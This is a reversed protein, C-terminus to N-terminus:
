SWSKTIRARAADIKKQVKPYRNRAEIDDLASAGDGDKIAELAVIGANGVKEALMGTQPRHSYSRNILSVIPTVAEEAPLFSAAWVLGRAAQDFANQRKTGDCLSTRVPATPQHADLRAPLARATVPSLRKQTEDLWRSSPRVSKPAARCHAEFQGFAIREQPSLAAYFTFVPVFVGMLSVVPVSDLILQARIDLQSKWDQNHRMWTVIRSHAALPSAELEAYTQPEHATGQGAALRANMACIAGHIEIFAELHPSPDIGALVAEWICDGYALLPAHHMAAFCSREIWASTIPACQTPRQPRLAVGFPFPTKISGLLADHAMHLKSTAVRQRESQTPTPAPEDLFHVLNERLLTSRVGSVMRLVKPDQGDLPHALYRVFPKKHAWQLPKDTDFAQILFAAEEATFRLRKQALPGLLRQMHSHWRPFDPVGEQGLVSPRQKTLRHQNLYAGVRMISMFMDTRTKTDLAQVGPAFAMVDRYINTDVPQAGPRWDRLLPQLKPHLLVEIMNFVIVADRQGKALAKLYCNSLPDKGLHAMVKRILTHSIWREPVFPDLDCLAELARRLGHDKAQPDGRMAAEVVPDLNPIILDHLKRQGIFRRLTETALRPEIALNTRYALVYSLVQLHQYLPAISKSYRQPALRQFTFVLLHALIEGKMRDNQALIAKASPFLAALGDPTTEFYRNPTKRTGVARIYQDLVAIGSLWHEANTSADDIRLFPLYATAFKFFRNDRYSM